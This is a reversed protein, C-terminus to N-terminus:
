WSFAGLKGPGRCVRPPLTQNETMLLKETAIFFIFVYNYGPQKTM